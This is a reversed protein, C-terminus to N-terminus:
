LRPVGAKGPRRGDYRANLQTEVWRLACLTRLFIRSICYVCFTRLRRLKRPQRLLWFALISNNTITLQTVDTADTTKRVNRQTANRPFQLYRVQCTSQFQFLFLDSWLQMVHQCM